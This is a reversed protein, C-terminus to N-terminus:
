KTVEKLHIEVEKGVLAEAQQVMSPLKEPNLMLALSQGVSYYGEGPLGARDFHGTVYFQGAYTVGMSGVWWGLLFGLIFKVV